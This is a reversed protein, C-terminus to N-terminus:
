ARLGLFIIKKMRQETSQNLLIKQLGVNTKRGYDAMNCLDYYKEAGEWFNM